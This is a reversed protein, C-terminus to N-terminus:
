AQVTAYGAQELKTSDLNYENQPVVQVKALIVPTKVHWQLLLSHFLCRLLREVFNVRSFEGVAGVLIQVKLRKIMLQDEVLM